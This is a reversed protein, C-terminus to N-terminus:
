KISVSPLSDPYFDYVCSAFIKASEIKNLQVKIKLEFPHISSDAISYNYKVVYSELCM